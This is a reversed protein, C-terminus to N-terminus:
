RRRETTRGRRSPPSGTLVGMVTVLVVGPVGPVGATVVVVCMVEAGSPRATTTCTWTGSGLKVRACRMAMPAATV